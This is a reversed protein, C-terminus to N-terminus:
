VRVGFTGGSAEISARQDDTVGTAGAFCSRTFVAGAVLLGDLRATTFDCDVFHAGRCDAGALDAGRLAVREFRADRLDAKSLDVHNLNRDALGAGRLEAKENQTFIRFIPNPSPSV